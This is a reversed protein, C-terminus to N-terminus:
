DRKPKSAAAALYLRKAPALLARDVPSGALPARVHCELLRLLWPHRCHHDPQTMM